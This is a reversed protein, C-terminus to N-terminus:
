PSLALSPKRRVASAFYDRKVDSGSSLLTEDISPRPKYKLLRLLM